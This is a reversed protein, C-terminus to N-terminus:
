IVSTLPFLKDESKHVSRFGTTVAVPRGAIHRARIFSSFLDSDHSYIEIEQLSPLLGPDSGVDNVQLARSLEESLATCLRPKKVGVFARHFEHWMTDDIEGNQWETPIAQGYFTLRLNEVGSLSPMLASCIQSACDIQWDLQRCMVHLAFRRSQQTSHTDMIMIMSVAEHGFTVEAIPLKLMETTSTFYLLHPLSFVIQNFLTIDLQELLPARIQGLMRELYSNVGRFRLHKLNPLTMPTGWKGLLEREASPRPIPISFGISLEELQPLSQLRAVLLGPRFYGSARINTLVLTVLSVASTLFRLRKPLDIGILTLHRLNPALCTKPLVLSTDERSESSLSLYKLMSFTEGMFMLINYLISPPIHLVIHHIRDCLCLAHPIALEDQRSIITNTDRYDVFLPFSPLHDLTGVVPTGNTCLIHMGLHFALSHVLHRWSHCVHSVKRWGHLNWANEEDLRYYNFIAFLIDLDIANITTYQM